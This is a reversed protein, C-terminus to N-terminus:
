RPPSCLRRDQEPLSNAAKAFYSRARSHEYKMLEIFPTTSTRAFSANRIVSDSPTRSPFLDARERYGGETACSTALQAIGLNVAYELGRPSM